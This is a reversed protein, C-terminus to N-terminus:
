DFSVFIGHPQSKLIEGCELQKNSDQFGLIEAEGRM